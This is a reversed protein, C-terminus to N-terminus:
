KVVTLWLHRVIRVGQYLRILQIIYSKMEISCALGIEGWGLNVGNSRM